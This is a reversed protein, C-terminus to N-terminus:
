CSAVCTLAGFCAVPTIAEEAGIHILAGQLSCQRRRRRVVAMIVHIADIGVSGERALAFWAITKHVLRAVIAMSALVASINVLAILLEIIAILSWRELHSGVPKPSLLAARASVQNTRVPARTCVLVFSVAERAM